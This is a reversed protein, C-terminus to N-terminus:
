AKGLLQDYVALNGEVMRDMTFNKATRLSAQGMSARKEKNKLLELIAHALSSSDRPPVLLGNVGDQVIEPIGGTRTAVIPLGVAMAELTSTGLGELYSSVAFIDLIAMIQPVDKRFGTFKVKATIKLDAALQKLEGELEGAGVFLFQAAPTKELVIKAAHLLCQQDKHPALAAINGIVPQAPDLGLEQYLTIDKERGLFREIDIGSHVVTIRDPAIGDQVLVNKIGASVTVFRDVRLKYKIKSIFNSGIHFDVRRSVILKCNDLGWAALLGITHAHSDHCHLINVEKDRLLRRLRVAAPLDWEGHVRLPLVAAPLARAKDYLVSRPSCALFCRINRQGLGKVLNLVQQQGGRWSLASDVQMIIPAQASM